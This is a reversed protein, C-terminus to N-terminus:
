DFIGREILPWLAHELSTVVAEEAAEHGIVNDVGTAALAAHMLEHFLTSMISRKYRTHPRKYLTITRTNWDTQGYDDVDDVGEEETVVRWRQGAVMVSKPINVAM